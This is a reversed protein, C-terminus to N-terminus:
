VGNGTLSFTYPNEDSDDNAITVTATKSGFSDPDFTIIFTLSSSPAIPSGPQTDVNFMAADTGSVLVKPSGSLNLDASGLNEVTFTIASGGTVVEVDGFNYAGGSPLNTSGWYMNIEPATGGVGNLTFTYPNEDPDDSAISVLATKAGPSSPSFTMTFTTSGSVAVPTSPQTGVTFMLADTGAVNVRTSGTLNLAALGLNEITFSVETGSTGSLVSGFDYSSGSAISAIGQKVNMDPVIGTGTISIVYPNENADDSAISVTASKLGASTPTYTITFTRSGGAAIPSTPQTGVVFMGADAGSVAV